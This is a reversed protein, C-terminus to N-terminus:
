GPPCTVESSEPSLIRTEALERRLNDIVNCLVHIVEHERYITPKPWGERVIDTNLHQTDVERQFAPWTEMLGALIADSEVTHTM